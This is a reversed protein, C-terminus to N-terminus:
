KPQHKEFASAIGCLAVFSIGGTVTGIIGLILALTLM